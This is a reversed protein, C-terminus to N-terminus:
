YNLNAEKYTVAACFPVWVAFGVVICPDFTVPTIPGRLATGFGEIPELDDEAPEDAVSLVSGVLGDEDDLLQEEPFSTFTFKELFFTSELVALSVAPDTIGLVGELIDGALEM